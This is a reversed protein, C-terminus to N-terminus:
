FILVLEGNINKWVKGSIGNEKLTKYDSFYYNYKLKEVKIKKKFEKILQKVKFESYAVILIYPYIKNDKPQWPEKMWQGSLYYREYNKLTKNAVYTANRESNEIELYFVRDSKYKYICFADPEIISVNEKEVFKLQKQVQFVLKRREEIINYDSQIFCKRKMDNIIHVYFNLISISHSLKDGSNYNKPEYNFNQKFYKIGENTLKYGDTKRKGRDVRKLLGTAELKALTRNASIFSYKNRYILAEVQERIVIGFHGSLWIIGDFNSNM